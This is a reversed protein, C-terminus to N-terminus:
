KTKLINVKDISTMALNVNKNMNGLIRRMEDEARQQDNIKTGDVYCIIMPEAHLPTTTITHTTIVIGLAVCAVAVAVRRFEPLTIRHRRPKPQPAKIDRLQGMAEFMAKLTIHKEPLNDATALYTAIAREENLTTTGEFYKDILINIKNLEM